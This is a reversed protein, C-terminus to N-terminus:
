KYNISGLSNLCLVMEFKYIASSCSKSIIGTTFLISMSEALVSLLLLRHPLVAQIYVPLHLYFYTCLCALTYIINKCCYYLTNRCGLPSWFRRQLCQNEIRYIIRESSNHSIKFQFRVFQLLIIKNFKIISTFFVM